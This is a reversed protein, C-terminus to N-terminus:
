VAKFKGRIKFQVETNQMKVDYLKTDQLKVNQTKLAALYGTLGVLVDTKIFTNTNHTHKYIYFVCYHRIM